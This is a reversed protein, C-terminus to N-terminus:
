AKGNVKSGNTSGKAMEAGETASVYTFAGGKTRATLFAARWEVLGFTVMLFPVIAMGEIFNIITHWIPSRFRLPLNPTFSRSGECYVGDIDGKTAEFLQVPYALALSAAIAGVIQFMFNVLFTWSNIDQSLSNYDFFVLLRTNYLIFVPLIAVYLHIFMAHFWLFFLRFLFTAKASGSLSRGIRATHDMLFVVESVGYAHRKAQQWRADLSTWFNHGTPVTNVIPYFIPLVRLRGGTTLFMKMTTHWDETIWNADWGDMARALTASLSYTSYAVRQANPDSLNALEHMSTLNSVVRVPRIQDLYNKYHVIPPQWISLCRSPTENEAGGGNVFGYTLASFYEKHFESDADAVTMVMRGLLTDTEAESRCPPIGANGLRTRIDICQNDIANAIEQEKLARLEQESHSLSEIDRPEAASPFGCINGAGCCFNFCQGCARGLGNERAIELNRVPSCNLAAWLRRAAWQTNASKGAAEREPHIGDSLVRPHFTPVICRFFTGFDSILQEAKQRANAEAEEMALVVIIQSKALPSAKISELTRHLDEIPEKYNPVVIIHLVDEWRIRIIAGPTVPEEMNLDDEYMKKFGGGDLFAPNRYRAMKELGVHVFLAVRMTMRWAQLVSFVTCLVFAAFRWTTFSLVPPLGVALIFLFLPFRQWTGRFSELPLNMLQLKAPRRADPHIMKYEEMIRRVSAGFQHQLLPQDYDLSSMPGSHSDIILLSGLAVSGSVIIVFAWDKSASEWNGFFFFDQFSSIVAQIILNAPLFLRCPVHRLGECVAGARFVFCLTTVVSWAPFRDWAHHYLLTSCVRSSLRFPASALGALLCYGLKDSSGGYMAVYISILVSMAFVVVFVSFREEAMTDNTLYDIYRKMELLNDFDKPVVESMTRSMNATCIVCCIAAAIDTRTFPEYLIIYSFLFGIFICLAHDLPLAKDGAVDSLAWINVLDHSLYFALGFWFM